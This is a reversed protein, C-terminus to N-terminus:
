RLDTIDFEMNYFLPVLLGVAVGEELSDTECLVLSLQVCAEPAVLAGLIRNTFLSLIPDALVHAPCPVREFQYISSIFRIEGNAVPYKMDM